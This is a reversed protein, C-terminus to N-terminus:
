LTPHKELVPVLGDDTLLVRIEVLQDPVDMEIGEPRLEHPVEGFEVPIGPTAMRPDLPTLVGRPLVPRGDQGPEPPGLARGESGIACEEPLPDRLAAAGLQHPTPHDPGQTAPGLHPGDALPGGADKGVLADQAAAREHFPHQGGAIRPLLRLLGPAVPQSLGLRENALPTPPLLNAQLLEPHPASPAPDRRHPRPQRHVKHRAEPEGEGVPRSLEPDGRRPNCFRDRSCFSWLDVSDVVNRLVTPDTPEIDPGSRLLQRHDPMEETENCLEVHPHCGLCV